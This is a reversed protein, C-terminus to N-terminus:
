VYDRAEQLAEAFMELNAEDGFQAWREKQEPYVVWRPRNDMWWEAYRYPAYEYVKPDSM